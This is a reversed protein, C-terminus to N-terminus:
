LAEKCKYRFTKAFELFQMWFYKYDRRYIPKILNFFVNSDNLYIEIGIRLYTQPFIIHFGVFLSFM